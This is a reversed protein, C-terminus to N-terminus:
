PDSLARSLCIAQAAIGEQRGIFGMGENTKAKINVKLGLKAFNKEMEPIYSAMKPKEAFITCDIWLPEINSLRLLNLTKELLLLSSIDKYSSDTDPFHRGIDGVGASGLLSDIIAHILVDADSHGSLGKEYPIEVGGIILKRGKEFRHSDYGIGIRLSNFLDTKKNILSKMRELDEKKTIKLNDLDGEALAVKGGYREILSADDTGFFGESYAQEYAKLLKKYWFAQPTQVAILVERNLTGGVLKKNKLWKITDTLSIGPIVGDVSLDLANLVRDILEKKILPRAADHILITETDEPLFKLANYVSDQRERGGEIIREVKTINFRMIENEVRDFMEKRTVIWIHDIKESSEFPEIAWIFLPKGQIETFVKDSSGFRKGKGAAVIIARLKM